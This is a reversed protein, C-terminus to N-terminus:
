YTVPFNNNSLNPFVLLVDGARGTGEFTKVPTSSALDGVTNIVFMRVKYKGGAETGVVFLNDTLYTSYSQYHKIFSVSEGATPDFPLQVSSAGKSAVNKRYIHNNSVFYLVDMTQNMTYMSASYAPDSTSLTDNTFKLTPNSSTTFGEIKTIFKVSPNTKSKMVAFAYSNATGRSGMYLMTTNSNKVSMDSPTADKTAVLQGGGYPCVLFTSSIEDFGLPGYYTHNITYKSLHYPTYSADIPSAAGFRGANSSMTYISYLQGQNITWIGQFTAFFRTPSYPETIVDYFMQDFDKEIKATTLVVAKADADSVPFITKTNVFRGTGPDYVSYNSAFSIADAKGKLQKGNITLLVDKVLLKGTNDFLDLDTVNGVNKLIYWGDNFKTVVNLTSSAFGTYGTTKNKAMFIFGYTMAKRTVPYNILDKGSRQITDLVPAYGQVNTEYIAYYYEFQAGPKNSTVTPTINLYDVGQVATYSSEFGTITIVEPDDYDYNGKDEFCSNLLATFAIVTIINLLKKM